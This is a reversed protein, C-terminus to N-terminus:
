KKELEVLKDNFTRVLDPPTQFSEENKWKEHNFHRFYQRLKEVNNDHTGWRDLINPVEHLADMLDYVVAMNAKPDLSFNRCFVMAWYLTHLAARHVAEPIPQSADSM